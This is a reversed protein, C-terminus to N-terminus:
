GDRPNYGRTCLQYATVCRAKASLIPPSVIANCLKTGKGFELRFERLTTDLKNAQGGVGDLAMSPPDLVDVLDRAALKLERDNAVLLAFYRIQVVHEVM